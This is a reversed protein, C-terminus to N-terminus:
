TDEAPPSPSLEPFLPTTLARIPKTPQIIRPMSDRVVTTSGLGGGVGGSAELYREAETLRKQTDLRGSSRARPTRRQSRARPTARPTMLAAQALNERIIASKKRERIAPM